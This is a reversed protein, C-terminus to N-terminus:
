SDTIFSIHDWDLANACFLAGRAAGTAGPLRPFTKVGVMTEVHPTLSLLIETTGGMLLTTCTMESPLHHLCEAWVRDLVGSDPRSWRAGQLVVPLVRHGSIEFVGLDVCGGTLCASAVVTSTPGPQLNVFACALAAPAAVSQVSGFGAESAERVADATETESLFSPLVMVTQLRTAAPLQAHLARFAELVGGGHVPLPVSVDEAELGPHQFVARLRSGGPDLGVRLITARRIPHVPATM